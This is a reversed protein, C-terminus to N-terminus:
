VGPKMYSNYNRTEAEPPKLDPGHKKEALRFSKQLIRPPQKKEKFSVDVFQLYNKVFFIKLEINEEVTLEQPQKSGKLLPPPCSINRAFAQFNWWVGTWFSVHGGSFDITPLHIDRNFISLGKKQPFMDTRRSHLFWFRGKEEQLKRAFCRLRNAVNIQLERWSGFFELVFLM